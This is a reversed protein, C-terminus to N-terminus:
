KEEGEGEKTKFEIKDGPCYIKYEFKGAETKYCYHCGGKGFITGEAEDEIELWIGDDLGLGLKAKSNKLKKQLEFFRNQQSFHPKIIIKKLMGMRATIIAGASLGGYPIGAQYKKQIIPTLESEAYAQIYRFTHGGGVFIGTASKLKKIMEPEFEYEEDPYIPFFDIPESKQFIDRYQLYYKKWDKGGQMLYVIEAKKGGAAEVFRAAYDKFNNSFDSILFLRRNM